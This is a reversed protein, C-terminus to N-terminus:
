LRNIEKAADYVRWLDRSSEIAALERRLDYMQRVVERRAAEDNIDLKYLDAVMQDFRANFRDLRQKTRQSLVIYEYVEEPADGRWNYARDTARQVVSGYDAPLRK